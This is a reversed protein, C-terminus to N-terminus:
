GQGAFRHSLFSPVDPDGSAVVAAQFAHGRVVHSLSASWAGAIQDNAVSNLLYSLTFAESQGANNFDILETAPGTTTSTATGSGDEFAASVILNSAASSITGTSWASATASAGNSGVFPTAQDVGAFSAAGLLYDNSGGGSGTWTLTTGSALGAPAVAYFVYVHLSGSVTPTGATWTLGGATTISLTAGTTTFYGIGVTILTATAATAGTVLTVSPAAAQAVQGLNADLTVAM